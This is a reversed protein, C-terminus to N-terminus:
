TAIVTAALTTIAPAPPANAALRSSEGVVRLWAIMVSAAPWSFMSGELSVLASSFAISLWISAATL